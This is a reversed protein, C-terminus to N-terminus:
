ARTREAIGTTAKHRIAELVRGAARKGSRIAGEMLGTFEPEAYEGAWYVDGIPTELDVGSPSPHGPAHAAYAGGALPDDSWITSVVQDDDGITLDPRLARAKRAWRQPERRLGVRDIAASTGMFANLVPAVTGTADIATWTWYRDRVSMVASTAPPSMLPIHLKAAHGQVVRALALDREASRPLSIDKNGRVVALPLAVVVADFVESGDDTAVVVGGDPLNVVHRVTSRYRLSGALAHALAEPLRQNGGCIRWSPKPEVDAIQGLADATVHRAGVATSIEIRARLADVIERRLELRSLVEEASLAGGLQTIVSRAERGAAVIDDTTVSPTDGPTRVYYSMGTDVLQLDHEAVLQRMSSYGHLVFEAGREITCVRDQVVIEESWVRGGPRDRGEFVAIDQGAKTLTDAAVLGALGAGLVAIRAM